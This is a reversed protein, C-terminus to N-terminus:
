SLNGSDSYTPNQGHCVIEQCRYLKAPFTQKTASSALGLNGDLGDALLRRSIGALHRGLSPLHALLAAFCVKGAL